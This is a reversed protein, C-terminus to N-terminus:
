SEGGIVRVIEADAEIAQDEANPWYGNLSSTRYDLRQDIDYAHRDERALAQRGTATYPEGNDRKFTFNNKPDIKVIAGSVVVRADM